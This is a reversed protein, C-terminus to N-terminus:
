SPALWRSLLSKLAESGEGSLASFTQVSVRPDHGCTALAAEQAARAPGRGVQDSKTLVVHLPRPGWLEILALDARGLGRRIDVVLVLGKLESRQELYRTVMGGWTERVQQAVAAYGYGPLDILRLSENGLSFVNILQTRGPRKSVRALRSQTITNIASSKGANSRGAFAIEAGGPPLQEIASASRLFRVCRFDPRAGSFQGPM